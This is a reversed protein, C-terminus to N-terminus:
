AGKEAFVVLSHPDIVTIRERGSKIWGSKEWASLTRSVTYLTTGTYDAIQQRGLPMDIFIGEPKKVGAHRMLRLLSRAIRREVNETALEQYRNQIEDIRYFLIEIIRIAIEPHRRLLELTTGKEWGIVESGEVAQATVPYRGDKLFIVAAIWEGPGVYRIIVEKGQENLKSLKLRGRNVLYCHKAPDEQRFLIDQADLRHHVGSKIVSEYQEPTLDKFLDSPVSDPM